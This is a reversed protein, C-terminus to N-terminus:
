KGDEIKIAHKNIKTRKPLLEASEKSFVDAFDLYKALITVKEGLFSAIQAKYVPHIMMKSTLSAVYVVFAEVNEDLAAKAFEKKHILEVKQNTSLTKKITYSRWILEKGTFQIDSNSITFFPMELIVEM